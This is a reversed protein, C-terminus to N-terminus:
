ENSSPSDSGRQDEAVYEEFGGKKFSAWDDYSQRNKYAILALIKRQRLELGFYIGLIVILVIGISLLTIILIGASNM